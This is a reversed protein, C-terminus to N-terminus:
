RTVFSFKGDTELVAFEVESLDGIGQMRAAEKLDAM